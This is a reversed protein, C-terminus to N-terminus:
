GKEARYLMRSLADVQGQLQFIQGQLQQGTQSAQQLQQQSSTLGALQQRLDELILRVQDNGPQEKGEVLANLHTVFEPQRYADPAAQTGPDTGPQAPGTAAEEPAAPTATGTDPPAVPASPPEPSSDESTTSDSM